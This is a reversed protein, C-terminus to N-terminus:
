PNQVFANLNLGMGVGWPICRGTCCVCVLVSLFMWTLDAAVFSDALDYSVAWADGGWGDAGHDADLERCVCTEITGDAEFAALSGARLAFDRAKIRRAGELM